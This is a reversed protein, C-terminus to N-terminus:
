IIVLTVAFFQGNKLPFETLIERSGRIERERLKKWVRTRKETSISKLYVNHAKFEKFKRFVRSLFWMKLLFEGLFGQKEYLFKAFWKLKSRENNFIVLM